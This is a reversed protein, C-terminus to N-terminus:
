IGFDACIFIELSIEHASYVCLLHQSAIVGM